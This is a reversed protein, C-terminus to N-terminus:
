SQFRHMQPQPSHEPGGFGIIHCSQRLWIANDLRATNLALLTNRTAVMLLHRKATGIDLHGRVSRM